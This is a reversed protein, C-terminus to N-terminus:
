RSMKMEQVKKMGKGGLLVFRVVGWLSGLGYAFHLIAFVVPALPMYKWGAKRGVDIAGALIGVLYLGVELALLYWLPKWMFGALALVLISLVFMLPIIQRLTAPRKHKQM